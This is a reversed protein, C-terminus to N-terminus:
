PPSRILSANMSLCLVFRCLAFFCLSICMNAACRVYGFEQPCLCVILFVASQSLHRCVCISVSMHMRGGNGVSLAGVCFHTYVSVACHCPCLSLSVPTHTEREWVYVILLGFIFLKLVYHSSKVCLCVCVCEHLSLCASVCRWEGVWLCVQQKLLTSCLLFTWSLFIMKDEVCGMLRCVFLVNEFETCVLGKWTTQNLITLNLCLFWRVLAISLDHNPNFYQQLLFVSFCRVHWFTLNSTKTLARSSSACAWRKELLTGQCGGFM